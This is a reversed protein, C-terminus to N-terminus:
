KSEMKKQAVVVLVPRSVERHRHNYFRAMQKKGMPLPGVQEVHYCKGGVNVRQRLGSYDIVTETEKGCHPCKM